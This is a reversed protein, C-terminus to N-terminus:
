FTYTAVVVTVNDKGGRELALDILRKCAEQSAHGEVLVARIADDDVMDTLGDSCMLIRDGSSLELQDVDVQVDENFGGLANVLVHRGPFTAAEEKSLQGSDILLQLYTHDRTLHHLRGNRLLYARSDGVHVIHLQRGMNRVITLTTGMGHLDRDQEGHNLLLTHLAQVRKKSRQKVDAAVAEDLRFIWDPRALALKVLGTIAMRSAQEGGAHGGMGDALIMAYGGEDTRANIEEAPLSTVVTELYRGIRMVLFHDENRARVKGTHSSGSVDVRVLQAASPVTDSSTQSSPKVATPRGQKSPM